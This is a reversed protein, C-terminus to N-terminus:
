YLLRERIRQRDNDPLELYNMTDRRTCDDLGKELAEIRDAADMLLREVKPKSNISHRVARERLKKPIDHKSM